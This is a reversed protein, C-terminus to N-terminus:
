IQNHLNLCIAKSQIGTGNEKERVLSHGLGTDDDLCRWKEQGADEDSFPSPSSLVPM